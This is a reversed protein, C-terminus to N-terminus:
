GYLYSPVMDRLRTTENLGFMINMSQVANGVDGKILNDLASFVGMRVKNEDVFFGVDCFNSGRVYKVDPLSGPGGTKRARIRIFPENSYVSRFAKWLEKEEVTRNPFVHGICEVGRVMSVAFMTASVKSPEIELEQSVEVLHRHEMVSYPRVVGTRESHHSARRPEAGAESSGTMIDYIIRFNRFDELKSLPYGALIMATSNCGPCAVYKAKRIEKRHLEPLGYVYEKLLEPLPHKRGYYKSYHAPNKLRFDASMDIIRTNYGVINKTIDLSAGAPVCIFVVDSNRAQKTIAKSVKAQAQNTPNYLSFKLDTLDLLNPHERYVYKGVLDKRRTTAFQLEVDKHQVLVELLSVGTYGTAGIIGAKITRTM